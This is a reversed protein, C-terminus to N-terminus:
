PGTPGTLTAGTLTAPNAKPSQGPADVLVIINPGTRTTQPIGVLEGPTWPLEHAAESSYITAGPGPYTYVTLAGPDPRTWGPFTTTCSFGEADASGIVNLRPAMRQELHLPAQADPTGSM